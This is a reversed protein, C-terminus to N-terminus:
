GDARERMKKEVIKRQREMFVGGVILILGGIMFFVSRPLIRWFTDFYRTLVDLAFIYLALRFIGEERLLYGVYLFACIQAFLLINYSVTVTMAGLPALHMCLAQLVVFVGVIGSELRAEDNEQQLLYLACVAVALLYFIYAMWSVPALYTDLTKTEESLVRGFTLVYNCPLIFLLASFKYLGSFASFGRNRYHLFGLSYLIFGFSIYVNQVLLYSGLGSLHVDKLHLSLYHSFWVITGLISIFLAAKQKQRYSLAVVAALWLFYSYPLREPTSALSVGLWVPLLLSSLVLISPSALIFVAPLIGILWFLVGNAYNYPMQFIQAVLWIGAGFSVAGLFFFTEGLRPFGARVFRLYYGCLNFGAIFAFVLAVKVPRGLSHWNSAIFLIIGLGVLVSGLVFVVSVLRNYEAARAYRKRLSEAKEPAIIGEQVWADLEKFLRKAWGRSVM